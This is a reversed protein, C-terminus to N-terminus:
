TELGLSQARVKAATPSVQLVEAVAEADHDYANWLAEFVNQPMLLEAAFRNAQAERPQDNFGYGVQRRYDVVNEEKGHLVIHGIEHAITFRNRTAPEDRNVYIVKQSHDVAGSVDHTRVSPTFSSVRYGLHEAVKVVPTPRVGNVDVVEGRLERARKRIHDITPM